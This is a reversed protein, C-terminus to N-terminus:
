REVDRHLRLDQLKKGFQPLAETEGDDEDRVIETAACIQSRTATMFSPSTHLLAQGDVNKPRGPMRCAASSSEIGAAIEGPLPVSRGAGSLASGDGVDASKRADRRRYVMLMLPALRRLL